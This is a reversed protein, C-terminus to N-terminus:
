GLESPLCLFGASHQHVGHLCRYLSSRCPLHRSLRLDSGTRIGSAMAACNVAGAPSSVFPMRHTQPSVLPSSKVRPAPSHCHLASAYSYRNRPTGCLEYNGAVGGWMGHLQAYVARALEFDEAYDIDIAEAASCAAIYPSDGTRRHRRALEATFVFPSSNEVYVADLQQTPPISAPEFNLPAPVPERRWMFKQMCHAAFASDHAGSCVQQLCERCTEASVFPTTAHALLVVDCSVASIFEGIIDGCRVQPGDLWAPRQLFRVGELLYPRIREDSCYVYIDDLQPLQLLTRQVLHMLPTGDDFRLLNKGPLRENQLKIPIYAAIKM